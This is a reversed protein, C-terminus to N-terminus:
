LGIKSKRAPRMSRNRILVLVNQEPGRSYSASDMVASILYLGRGSAQEPEPLQIQTPWEFGATRDIIRLRIRAPECRVEILIPAPPAPGRGHLIANNCAEVLALQCAAAEPETCGNACLFAHAAAAIGPVAALDAALNFRCSPASAAM